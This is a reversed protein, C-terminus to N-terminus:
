VSRNVTVKVPGFYQVLDCQNHSPSAVVAVIGRLERETCSQDNDIMSAIIAIHTRVTTLV